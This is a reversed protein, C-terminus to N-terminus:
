TKYWNFNDLYTIVNKVETYMELGERGLERGIGSQKVGGYPAQFFV